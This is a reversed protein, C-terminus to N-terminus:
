FKFHSCNFLTKDILAELEAMAPNGPRQGAQTLQIGGAAVRAAASGFQDEVAGNVLGNLIRPL